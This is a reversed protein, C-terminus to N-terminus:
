KNIFSEYHMMVVRSVAQQLMRDIATPIGLQRWKNGGKPIEKGRIPQPLYECNMISENLENRHKDLHDKLESVKMGDVGGAGKNRVVEKCAETLNAPHVVREILNSTDRKRKKM